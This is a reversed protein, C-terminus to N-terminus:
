KIEKKNAAIWAVYAAKVEDPGISPPFTMLETRSESGDSSHLTFMVQGPPRSIRNEHYNKNM